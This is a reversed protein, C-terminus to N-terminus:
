KTDEKRNFAEMIWKTLERTAASMAIIIGITMCFMIAMEITVIMANLETM